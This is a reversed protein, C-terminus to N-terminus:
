YSGKIAANYYGGPSGSMVLQQYVEQPVDPHTYSRGNVFTVTLDGTRDDYSCSALASSKVATTTKAM